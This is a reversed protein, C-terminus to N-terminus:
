SKSQKSYLTAIRVRALDMEPNLRLATEFFRIAEDTKGQLHYMQGLNFYASANSPNLSIAHCTYAIAEKLKGKKASANGLNIYAGHHNPNIELAKAYQEIAEDLKGKEELAVGLHNRAIIQEPALQVAERFHSIASDVEGREFLAIGLGQHAIASQPRKALTDSWISIASQYVANRQITLISLTLLSTLLIGFSIYRPNKGQMKTRTFIFHLLKHVTIVTLVVLVALPLYMRRDAAPGSNPHFFSSTPALFLFFSLGLFGLSSKRWFLWLSAGFLLAIFFTHPLVQRFTQILPWNYDFCLARPWFALKLYHTLVEMQTALYPLSFSNRPANMGLTSQPPNFILLGFLIIWTSFLALYFPARLRLPKKFSKSIFVADYLFIVIPAGVMSEKTAMGLACFTVATVLWYVSASSQFGRIACYFTALFFFGMFSESRQIIYTVSETQIPHALWLLASVLALTTAASGCSQRLFGSSLTRRIIAFLLVANLCHVAINTLRYSRVDLGSFHYNLALSFVTFPRRPDGLFFNELSTLRRIYPSHVIYTSDDFIFPAPISNWYILVAVTSFLLPILIRRHSELAQM